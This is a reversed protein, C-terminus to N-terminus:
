KEFSAITAPYSATNSRATVSVGERQDRPRLELLAAEPRCFLRFPAYKSTGLGPSVHLFGRGVRFLGSAMRTPLSCNTVLAGVFPLRVQGGHTHGAVVLDYGLSLLEPAPDPSHIVALGLAKPTARAAVRPDSRHIHSDDLGVVELRTGDLAWEGRRNKLHLWGDAELLRVLDASRGRRGVRRKRRREPVFYRFYNAPRPAYLDNSGLVFLSLWRGRVDRLAQAVYEVSDPDGVMDGTIVTVDAAPLSALFRLLRRDGRLMHLDSLHLVDIRGSLGAPLIDLRYRVLRYWRREVFVAYLVTAAAGLLVTVIAALM